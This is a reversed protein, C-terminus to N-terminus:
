FFRSNKRIKKLKNRLFAIEKSNNQITTDFWNSYKTNLLLFRCHQNWQLIFGFYNENSKKHWLHFKSFFFIHRIYNNRYYVISNQRTILTNQCISNQCCSVQFYSKQFCSNLFCSKLFCSNQCCINLWCSNLCLSNSACHALNLTTEIYTVCFIPRVLCFSLVCLKRFFFCFYIIGNSTKFISKIRVETTFGSFHHLKFFCDSHFVLNTSLYLYKTALLQNKLARIHFWFQFFHNKKNSRRETRIGQTNM